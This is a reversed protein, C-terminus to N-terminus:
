CTALGTRGQNFYNCFVNGIQELLQLADAQVTILTIRHNYVQEVTSRHSKQLNHVWTGKNWILRKLFSNCFASM